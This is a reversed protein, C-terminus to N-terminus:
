HCPCLFTKLNKKVGRSIHLRNTEVPSSTKSSFFLQPLSILRPTNFRAATREHPFQPVLVANVHWTTAFYNERLHIREGLPETVTQPRMCFWLVATKWIQVCNAVYIFIIQWVFVCPNSASGPFVFIQM